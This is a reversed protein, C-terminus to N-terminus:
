VRCYMLCIARKHLTRTGAFFHMLNTRVGSTIFFPHSSACKERGLESVLWKLIGPLTFSLLEQRFYCLGEKLASQDIVGAACAAVSQKVLTAGIM